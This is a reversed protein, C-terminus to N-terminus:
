RPPALAEPEVGERRHVTALVKPVYMRTEIPLHPAAAEFTAAGERRLVRGVRGEGANYAALALPWSRFRGYLLKLYRAAARASKAPLFREDDPSTQLGFRLATDPMFQYLGKAGTPSVARPNFSSEVEALWVLQPPLGESEFIKKLGPVLEAAAAPAPRSALREKWLLYSSVAETRERAVEPAVPPAPRSRPVIGPAAEAPPPSASPAGGGEPPLYYSVYRALELYDIRQRLWDAYPRGEETADLIELARLAEPLLWALPELSGGERAATLGDWFRRWQEPGPLTLGDLIPAPVYEEVGALGAQRAAERLTPPEEAARAPSLIALGLLVATLKLSMEKKKVRAVSPKPIIEFLLSPLWSFVSSFRESGPTPLRRVPRARSGTAM